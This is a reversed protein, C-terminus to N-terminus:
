GKEGGDPFLVARVEAPLLESVRVVQVLEGTPLRGVDGLWPTGAQRVGTPQLSGERPTTVDTVQEAVLGLPRTGGGAVPYRVLVVRTSFARRASEGTQLRVLDVLPVVGGSISMLGEIWAPTGELRRAEVRPVIALVESVDVGYRTGGISFAVVAAGEAM